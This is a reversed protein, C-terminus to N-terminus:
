LYSYSNVTYCIHIKFFHSSNDRKNNITTSSCRKLTNSCMSYVIFPPKTLDIVTNKMLGCANQKRNCIFPEKQKDTIKLWYEEDCHGTVYLEPYFYKIFTLSCLPDTVLRMLSVRYMLMNATSISPSQTTNHSLHFICIAKAWLAARLDAKFTSENELIPSWKTGHSASICLVQLHVVERKCVLPRRYM